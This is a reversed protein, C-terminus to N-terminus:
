AADRSGGALAGAYAADVAAAVGADGRYPPPLTGVALLGTPTILPAAELAARTARAAAAATRASAGCRVGWSFLRAEFYV